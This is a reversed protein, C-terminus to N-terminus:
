NPTINASNHDVPTFTVTHTSTTVTITSGLTGPDSLVKNTGYSATWLPDIVPWNDLETYMGLGDGQQCHSLWAAMMFTKVALTDDWHEVVVKRGLSHIQDVYNFMSRLSWQQYDNGVISSMGIGNNLGGDAFGGEINIYDSATIQQQVVASSWRAPRNAYWVSNHLIECNPYQAKLSAKIETVFDAVAQSWWTMDRLPAAGGQRVVSRDVDLNVDDIWFGSYGAGLKSLAEAIWAARYAPNSIDAAQRPYTPGEATPWPVYLPQSDSDMLRYNDADHLNFYMWIPVNWGVMGTNIGYTSYSIIRDFNSEFYHQQSPDEIYGNWDGNTRLVRLPKLGAPPQATTGSMAVSGNQWNTM